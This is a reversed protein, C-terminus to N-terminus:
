GQGSQRSKLSTPIISWSVVHQHPVFFVLFPGFPYWFLLTEYTQYYYYITLHNRPYSGLVELTVKM